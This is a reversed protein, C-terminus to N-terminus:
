NIETLNRGKVKAKYLAQIKKKELIKSNLYEIM